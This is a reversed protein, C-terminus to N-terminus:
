SGGKNRQGLMIWLGDFMAGNLASLEPSEIVLAFNEIKSSVYLVKEDYLYMTMGLDMTVPAYRLERLDEHSSPWIHESERSPSRIVNLQIGRRLREAIFDDMWAAGPVELLEHMSLIGRLVKSKCDLTEWMARRIGEIGEYFRIRPRVKPGALLSRLEPVLDDLMTRTRDWERVLVGPDEAVVQKVGGEGEIQSLLGRKQLRQLLDYGNTRSVDARASVATVSASGLELAALYFRQEKEDLGLSLLRPDM